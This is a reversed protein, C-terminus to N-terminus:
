FDKAFSTDYEYEFIIRQIIKLDTICKANKINLADSQM